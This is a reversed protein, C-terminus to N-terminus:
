YVGQPLLVGVIGGKCAWLGSSNNACHILCVLYCIDSYLMIVRYSYGFLTSDSLGFFRILSPCNIWMGSYLAM